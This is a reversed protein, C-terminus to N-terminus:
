AFGQGLPANLLKRLTQVSIRRPSAQPISLHFGASTPAPMDNDHAPLPILTDDIKASNDDAPLGGASAVRTAAPAPSASPAAGGMKRAAWGRLDGVTMRALFPNARVAASGLVDGAPTSADSTLLKKAGGIGAFHALYLSSPSADLGAASLQAGNDRLLRAGADASAVPDFPDNLGYAKATPDTFQFLGKASSSDSSASPDLGSEVQAFRYLTDPDVGNAIARDRIIDAISM